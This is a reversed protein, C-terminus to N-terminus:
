KYYYPWVDIFVLLFHFFVHLILIVLTLSNLNLLFDIFMLM